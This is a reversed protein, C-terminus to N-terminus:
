KLRYVIVERRGFLLADRLSNFGLDIRNGVIAGGTDGAVAYGYGPIYLKAGLPIVRPDVAVIGHGAPRGTATIGSCGYCGATYATAIMRMANAQAFARAGGDQSLRQFAEFEDLGLAVIRPQPKRVISSHVIRASIPGGDRQAFAVTVERQGAVGNKVVRTAGPALSADVRAVTPPAIARLENRQWTVVRSIRVVERARIPQSLSPSVRDNSGLGIGQEALMAAVDSASTYVTTRERATVIVVPVAARYEITMRDTIPTESAPSVFDHDGVTIGRERLFDGVTAAATSLEAVTGQRDLTVAHTTQTDWGSGAFAPSPHTLFGACVLGATL